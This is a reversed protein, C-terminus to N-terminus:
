GIRRLRRACVWAGLIGAVMFFAGLYRKELPTLGALWDRGAPSLVLWAVGVSALVLLALALEELMGLPGIGRAADSRPDTKM